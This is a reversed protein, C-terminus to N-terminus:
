LLGQLMERLTKDGSEGYIITIPISRIHFKKLYWQFFTTIENADTYELLMEPFLIIIFIADTRMKEILMNSIRYLNEFDTPKQLSVLGYVQPVLGKSHSLADIFTLKEEMQIGKKKIEYVLDNVRTDYTVILGGQHKLLLDKIIMAAQELSHEDQVIRLSSMHSQQFFGFIGGLYTVVQTIQKSIKKMIVIEKRIPKEDIM